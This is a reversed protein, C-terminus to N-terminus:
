WFFSMFDIVTVTTVTTVTFDGGLRSRVYRTVPAVVSACDRGVVVGHDLLQGGVGDRVSGVATAVMAAKRGILLRKSKAAIALPLRVQVASAFRGPCCGSVSIEFIFKSHDLTSIEVVQDAVDAFIAEALRNDHELIFDEVPAITIPGTHCGADLGRESDAPDL